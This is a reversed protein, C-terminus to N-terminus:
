SLGTARLIDSLQYSMNLAIPSLLASYVLDTLIEPRDIDYLIVTGVWRILELNRSEGDQSETARVAPRFIKKENKRSKSIKPNVM